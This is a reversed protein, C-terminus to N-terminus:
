FNPVSNLNGESYSTVGAVHKDRKIGTPSYNKWKGM